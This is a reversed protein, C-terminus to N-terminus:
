EWYSENEDENCYEDGQRDVCRQTCACPSSSTFLTILGTGNCKPCQPDPKPQNDKNQNEYVEMYIGVLNMVELELVSYPCSETNAFPKGILYINGSEAEMRNRIRHARSRQENTMWKLRM